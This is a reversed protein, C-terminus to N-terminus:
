PNAAPRTLPHAVWVNPEIYIGRDAKLDISVPVLAGPVPFRGTYKFCLGTWQKWEDVTGSITMARSCIRIIRAGQRVHVRLWADAPLGNNEKQIYQDMSMEPHAAKQNPRVPALLHTLGAARALERMLTVMLHSFSRGQYAPVIQIALASLMNPEIGEKLQAVGKEFVWDWGEDPLADLEQDWKVPISSGNAIWDGTMRDQLAFQFEPALENLYRWNRKAVPDHLMFEPWAKTTVADARDVANVDEAASVFRM